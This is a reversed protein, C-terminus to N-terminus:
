KNIRVPFGACLAEPKALVILLISWNRTRQQETKGEVARLINLFMLLVRAIRSYKYQKHAM